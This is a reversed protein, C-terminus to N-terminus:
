DVYKLYYHMIYIEIYIIRSKLLILLKGTYHPNYYSRGRGRPTFYRGRNGRFFGGRYLPVIVIEMITRTRIFIM